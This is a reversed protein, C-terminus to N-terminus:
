AAISPDGFLKLLIFCKHRYRDSITTRSPIRRRTTAVTRECDSEATADQRGKKGDVAGRILHLMLTM